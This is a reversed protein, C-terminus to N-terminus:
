KKSKIKNYAKKLEAIQTQCKRIQDKNGREQYFQTWSYLNQLQKTITQQQKSMGRFAWVKHTHAVLGQVKVLNCQETDRNHREHNDSCLVM